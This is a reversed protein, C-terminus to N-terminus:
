PFNYRRANSRVGGFQEGYATGPAPQEVTADLIPGVPAVIDLQGQAPAAAPVYSQVISDTWFYPAAALTTAGGHFRLVSGGNANAGFHIGRAAVLVGASDQRYAISSILPATADRYTNFWEVVFQGVQGTTLDSQAIGHGAAPFWVVQHAKGYWDLADTLNQEAGPPVVTDLRGHMHILPVYVDAIGAEGSPTTYALPGQKIIGGATTAAARVRASLTRVAEVTVFAGMSNGYLFTTERDVVDGLKDVVDTSHLLNLADQARRVNEPSGGCARTSDECVVQGAHTYTVAVVIYGAPAFWQAALAVPAGYADGGKGHSVVVGPFPGPVQLPKVVVGELDVVGNDDLHKFKYSEAATGVLEPPGIWQVSGLLDLPPSVAWVTAPLLVFLGSSVLYRRITSKM